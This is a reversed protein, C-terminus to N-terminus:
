LLHKFFNIDSYKFWEDGFSNDSYEDPDLVDIDEESEPPNIPYGETTDIIIRGKDFIYEYEPNM